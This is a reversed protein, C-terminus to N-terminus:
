HGSDVPKADNRAGFSLQIDVGNKDVFLRISKLNPDKLAAEHPKLAEYVQQAIAELHSTGIM